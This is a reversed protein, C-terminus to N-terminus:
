VGVAEGADEGLGGGARYFGTVGGANEGGRDVEGGGDLDGFGEFEERALGVEHAAGEEGEVQPIGGALITEVAALDVGAGGVGVAGDAGVALESVEGANAARM